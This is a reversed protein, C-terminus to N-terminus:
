CMKHLSLESLDVKVGFSLFKLMAAFTLKLGRGTASKCHKWESNISKIYEVLNREAVALHFFLNYILNHLKVYTEWRTQTKTTRMYSWTQGWATMWSRARMTRAAWSSDPLAVGARARATPSQCWLGGRCGEADWRAMTCWCVALAPRRHCPALGPYLSPDVRGPSSLLAPLHLHTLFLLLIFSFSPREYTFRQTLFSAAPWDEAIDDNSLNRMRWEAFECRMHRTQTEWSDAAWNDSSLGKRWKYALSVTRCCFIFM